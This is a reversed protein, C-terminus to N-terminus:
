KNFKINELLDFFEKEDKVAHNHKFESYVVDYYEKLLIRAVERKEGKDLLGILLDVKKKGVFNVLKRVCERLDDVDLCGYEDLINGVRGDFDTDLKIKVSKKMINFLFSPIFVDGIKSSENEIVIFDFKKLEELREFLLSEFMKQSRPKLGVGGFLSSRHQALGELDLGNELKRILKTKGAGTLGGLVFVKNKIKYNELGERIFKRYGKYGNNLQEVEFGLKKLLSVISKSRMGGRWCFVVIKKNRLSGFKDLIDGLSEKVFGLGKEFAADKGENKYLIGIIRREDDSFLPISVANPITAEEFEGPSRVDVFVDGTFDKYEIM